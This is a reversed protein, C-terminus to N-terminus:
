HLMNYHYILREYNQVDLRDDTHSNGHIQIFHSIQNLRIRKIAINISSIDSADMVIEEVRAGFNCKEKNGPTVTIVVKYDTQDLIKRVVGQGIDGTAGTVLVVSDSM